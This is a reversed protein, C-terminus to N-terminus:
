NEEKEELKQRKGRLHVLEEAVNRTEEEEEKKEEKGYLFYQMDPSPAINLERYVQNLIPLIRETKECIYKYPRLIDGAEVNGNIKTFQLKTLRILEGIPTDMNCNKLKEYDEPEAECGEPFKSMKNKPKSQKPKVWYVCLNFLTSRKSGGGGKVM